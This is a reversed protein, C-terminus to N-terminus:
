PCRLFEIHKAVIIVQRYDRVQKLRGIIRVKVGEKGVLYLKKGLRGEVEVDICSSSDQIKGNKGKYRYVNEILCCCVPSEDSNDQLISDYVLTGALIVSNINDM